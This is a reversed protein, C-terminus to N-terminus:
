RPKIGDDIKLKESPQKSRQGDADFVIPGTAGEYDAGVEVLAASIAAPEASGAKEIAAVLMKVADYGYGNFSSRFGEGYKAQYADAYAQGNAGINNLDMGVQGQIFRPDSDSTCMSLYIAYWPSSGAGIGLEFAERSITAAERGYASYVYVDPAGRELQQLERRYTTQGETYLIATTIEGGLATFAKEFQTVVGQGFANNPAIVAAKKWGNDIVDQAAFGSSVNDLGILSFSGEGLQRVLGSSSGINLHVRKEQVLYQGVPITIGSSYEGIVAPVNDVTVLKKAADLASPARGGSDEVIVNLKGGLVGGAANVEEVALEIGRRQDDGITASAGSLPLVAGITVDAAQAVISTAALLAATVILKRV